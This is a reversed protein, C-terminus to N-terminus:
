RGARALKRASILDVLEARTRDLVSAYERSPAQRFLRVAPYWPSDDRDLLWRYDPTYPLLIWTPCGLAGALHAVSTDVTIVLDLCSILAATEAFNTLHATLDVIETRELLTQRDSARPDKQLSIFAADADLIRALMRLPISRNHDNKHKPNGSWVLGVRLRDHAGLREEWAQLRGSTPRPLYSKDAPITDLRTRFALPLSSLACHLDFDPLARGSKPLCQSVGTLESLLPCVADEVVLIVRAGRAAVMPVYRAFQITDGLGEDSCVLLTKGAIPEDGLWMPQSPKPYNTSLDPLKWRVERGAWGAEFNGLLMQLLALNWEAVAGSPDIVTAQRYAAIAEDFRHLEALTVARDSVAAASNPQLKLSRDFWALAEEHRGLMLLVDGIYTCIHSDTPNLAHVRESDALCQALRNLSFLARARKLLTPAHDPKLEDCLDFHLLAEEFRELQHLLIGSQYAAEWHHPNLELVRQYSLLAEAHRGLLVLVSGLHKWLEAEDPKLQAAKDFVKLAEELRGQQKLTVGLNSLYETKPNQRIARAFWEVAHNHQGVQLSAMGMLHLTDAHQPAIALAQQCCVQADLQRGACLHQLGAEYLAAVMDGDSTNQSVKAKKTAARRERRKM